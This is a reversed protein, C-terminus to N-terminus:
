REQWHTPDVSKLSYSKVEFLSGFVHHSTSPSCDKRAKPVKELSLFNALGGDSVPKQEGTTGVTLGRDGSVTGGEDWGSEVSVKQTDQAEQSM